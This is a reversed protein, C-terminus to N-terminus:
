SRSPRHVCTVSPYCLAHQGDIVKFSLTSVAGPSVQGKSEKDECGGDDDWYQLKKGNKGVRYWWQM